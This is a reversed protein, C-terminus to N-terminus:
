NVPRAKPKASQFRARDIAQKQQQNSQALEATAQVLVTLLQQSMSNESGNSM